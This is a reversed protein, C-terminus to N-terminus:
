WTRNRHPLDLGGICPVSLNAMVASKCTVSLIGVAMDVIVYAIAVACHVICLADYGELSYLACDLRMEIRKRRGCERM